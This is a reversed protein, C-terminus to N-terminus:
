QGVDTLVEVLTKSFYYAPLSYYGLRYERMFVPKETAFISLVNMASGM